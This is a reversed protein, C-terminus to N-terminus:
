NKKESHVSELLILHYLIEMRCVVFQSSEPLVTIRAQYLVFISHVTCVTEFYFNHNNKNRWLCFLIIPFNDWSTYKNCCLHPLRWLFGNRFIASGSSTITTICWESKYVGVFINGAFSVFQVLFKFHIGTFNRFVRDLGAFYSIIGHWRCFMFFHEWVSRRM